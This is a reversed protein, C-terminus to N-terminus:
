AAFLTIKFPGPPVIQISPDPIVSSPVAMKILPGILWFPPPAPLGNAIRLSGAVPLGM